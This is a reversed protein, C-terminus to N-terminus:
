AGEFEDDLTVLLSDIVSVKENQSASLKQGFIVCNTIVPSM